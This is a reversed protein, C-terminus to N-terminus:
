SPPWARSCGTASRSQRPRPRQPCTLSGSATRSRPNGAAVQADNSDEDEFPQYFTLDERPVAHGLTAVTLLVGLSTRTVALRDM